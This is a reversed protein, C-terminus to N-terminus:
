DLLECDIMGKPLRLNIKICRASAPRSARYRNMAEESKYIRGDLIQHTNKKIRVTAFLPSTIVTPVAFNSGSHFLVVKQNAIKNMLNTAQHATM